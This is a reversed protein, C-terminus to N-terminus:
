TGRGTSVADVNGRNCAADETRARGFAAPERRHRVALSCSGFAVGLKRFAALMASVQEHGAQNAVVLLREELWQPEGFRVRRQRDLASQMVPPGKVRNRLIEKADKAKSRREHQIQPLIDAVAYTVTYMTESSRNDGAIHRAASASAPNRKTPGDDARAPVAANWSIGLLTVALLIRGFCLKEDVCRLWSARLNHLQQDCSRGCDM